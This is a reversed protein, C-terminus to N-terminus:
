MGSMNRTQENKGDNKITGKRKKSLYQTNTKMSSIHIM